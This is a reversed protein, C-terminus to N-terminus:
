PAMPPGDRRAARSIVVRFGIFPRRAGPDAAGRTTTRVMRAADGFSGGRIVWLADADLNARDNGPDYPYPQYPSSTWEWVNGSMDALGYPCEPCPFMGVPTTGRGNYNARARQPENGWPYRRRDTGRAAKEWEAENPLTIRWGNALLAKIQRPTSTGTELTTELWRCYALADPWSVFTVPHTPPGAVARQDITWRRARAFTSFEEVTVERLAIYFTPVSVTGEAVAPSWRENAFADPDRAQDAGMTFPGAAVEVFGAMQDTLAPAPIALLAHHSTSGVLSPPRHLNPSGAALSLLGALWVWVRPTM